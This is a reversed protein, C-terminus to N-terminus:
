PLNRPLGNAIQCPEDEHINQIAVSTTTSHRAVATKQIINPPYSDNIYKIPAPPKQVQKPPKKPMAQISEARRQYQPPVNRQHPDDFNHCHHIIKTEGSVMELEKM